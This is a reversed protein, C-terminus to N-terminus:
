YKPAVGSPVDVSLALISFGCYATTDNLHLSGDCVFLGKRPSVFGKHRVTCSADCTIDSPLRDYYHMNYWQFYLAITLCLTANCFM